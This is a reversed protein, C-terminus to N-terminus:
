EEGTFDLEFKNDWNCGYVKWEGNERTVTMRVIYTEEKKDKKVTLRLDVSAATEIYDAADFIIIEGEQTLQRISCDNLFLSLEEEDYPNFGIAEYTVEYGKGVNKEFVSLITKITMETESRFDEEFTEIRMYEASKEPYGSINQRITDIDNDLYANIVTDVVKAIDEELEVPEYKKKCGAFPVLMLLALIFSVIKTIKMM